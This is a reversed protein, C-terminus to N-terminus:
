KGEELYAIYKERALHAEYPDKYTGLWKTRGNHKYRAKWNKSGSDWTVGVYGSSNRKSPIKVSQDLHTLDYETYDSKPFNTVAFENFYFLAGRDYAKAADEATKYTGLVIRQGDPSQIRAIYHNSKSVYSIGKYGIKNTRYMRSNQTNQMNTCIRLNDKRCDLTNHNKHDVVNGDGHKCGMLFRHLFTDKYDQHEESWIRSRFYYLQEKKAKGWMVRWKHQMVRDYDDEDILVKFGSIEIEM